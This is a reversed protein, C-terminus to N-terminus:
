ATQKKSSLENKHVAIMHGKREGELILIHVHTSALADILHVRDGNLFVHSETVYMNRGGEHNELNYCM